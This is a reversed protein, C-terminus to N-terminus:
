PYLNSLPILTPCWPVNAFSSGFRMLGPGGASIRHGSRDGQRPGSAKRPKPALGCITDPSLVLHEGATRIGATLFLIRFCLYLRMKLAKPVELREPRSPACKNASAENGSGIRSPKSRSTHV